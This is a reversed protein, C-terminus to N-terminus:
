KPDSKKFYIKRSRWNVKKPSHFKLVNELANTKLRSLRKQVWASLWNLVDKNESFQVNDIHIFYYMDFELRNLGILMAANAVCLAKRM